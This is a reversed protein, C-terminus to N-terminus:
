GSCAARRGSVLLHFGGLVPVERDKGGSELSLLGSVCVKERGTPWPGHDRGWLRWGGAGGVGHLLVDTPGMDTSICDM